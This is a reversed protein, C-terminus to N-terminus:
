PGRDQRAPAAGRMWRDLVAREFEVNGGVRAFPLGASRARRLSSVSRGTYEAAQRQTLYPSAPETGAVCPVGSRMVAGDLRAAVAAAIPEVGAEIAAEVFADVLLFIADLLADRRNRSIPM